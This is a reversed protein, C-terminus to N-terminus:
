KIKNLSQKDKKLIYKTMDNNIIIHKKIKKKLIKNLYKDCIFVSQSHGLM